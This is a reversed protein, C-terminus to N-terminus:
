GLESSQTVYDVLPVIASRAAHARASREAMIGARSTPKLHANRAHSVRKVEPLRGPRSLLTRVNVYRHNKNQISYIIASSSTKTLFLMIGYKEMRHTIPLRVIELFFVPLYIILYM